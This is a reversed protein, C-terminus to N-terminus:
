TSVPKKVIEHFRIINKESIEVAENMGEISSFPVISRNIDFGIELGIINIEFYRPATSNTNKLMTKRMPEIQSISESLDPKQSESM